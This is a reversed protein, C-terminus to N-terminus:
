EEKDQGKWDEPWKGDAIMQLRVANARALIEREDSVWDSFNLVTYSLRKGLRTEPVREGFSCCRLETVSGDRWMSVKWPEMGSPPMQTVDMRWENYVLEPYTEVLRQAHEEISCVAVVDAAMGHEGRCRSVVYVNALEDGVRFNMERTKEAETM